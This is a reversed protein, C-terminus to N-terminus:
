APEWSDGLGPFVQIVANHYQLNICPTDLSLWVLAVTGTVIDGNKLRCRIRQGDAPVPVHGALDEWAQETIV